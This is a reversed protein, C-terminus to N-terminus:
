GGDARYEVCGKGSMGTAERVKDGEFQGDYLVEKEAEEKDSNVL